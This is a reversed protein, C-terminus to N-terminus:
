TGELGKFHGNQAKKLFQCWKSNQNKLPSKQCNENLVCKRAYFSRTICKQYFFRDDYSELLSIKHIEHSQGKQGKNRLSHGQGIIELDFLKM